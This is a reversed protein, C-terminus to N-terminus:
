CRHFFNDNMFVFFLTLSELYPWHGGGRLPHSHLVMVGNDNFPANQAESASNQIYLLHLCLVIYLFTKEKSLKAM